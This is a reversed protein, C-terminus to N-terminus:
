FQNFNKQEQEFRLKRAAETQWRHGSFYKKTFKIFEQKNEPTDNPIKGVAVLEQYIRERLEAFDTRGFNSVDADALIKSIIDDDEVMQIFRKEEPKTRTSLIAKKVREIEEESYGGIERIKEEAIRAGIEENNDYQEIFGADHYAAAVALLEIDRQSVGGEVMAFLIAEKLVDEGHHKGHYPLVDLFRKAAEPYKEPLRKEILTFAEQVIPLRRMRDAMEKAAIELKEQEHKEM